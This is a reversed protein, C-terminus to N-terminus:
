LVVDYTSCGEGSTNEIQFSFNKTKLKKFTSEGGSDFFYPMPSSEYSIDLSYKLSSTFTAKSKM